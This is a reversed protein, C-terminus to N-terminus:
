CISHPRPSRRRPPWPPCSNRCGSGPCPPCTCWKACRLPTPLLVALHGKWRAPNEGTRWHRARAADLVAEIRGRLRSATEPKTNWIPQLARLVAETDVAQVPWDGFAPYAHTVLTQGWQWRHHESKRGASRAAILDEAARKFTHGTATDGAAIASDRAVLPDDCSEAIVDRAAQAKQRAKALSITPFRGLGMDRVKGQRM